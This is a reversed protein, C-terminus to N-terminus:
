GSANIGRSPFFETLPDNKVLELTKKFAAFFQRLLETAKGRDTEKFYQRQLEIHENRADEYRQRFVHLAPQLQEMDTQELM